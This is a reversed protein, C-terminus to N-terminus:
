FGYDQETGASLIETKVNHEKASIDGGVSRWFTVMAFLVALTLVLQKM